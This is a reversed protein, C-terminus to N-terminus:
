ARLIHSNVRLVHAKARLVHAYVEQYGSFDPKRLPRVKSSNSCSPSRGFFGTAQWPTVALDACTIGTSPVTAASKQPSRLSGWFWYRKCIRRLPEALPHPPLRHDLWWRLAM